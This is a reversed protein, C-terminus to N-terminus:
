NLYLSCDLKMEIEVLDNYGPIFNINQVSVVEVRDQLNEKTEKKMRKKIELLNNSCKRYEDYLEETIFGKINVRPNKALVESYSKKVTIKSLEEEKIEINEIKEIKFLQVNFGSYKKVMINNLEVRDGDFEVVFDIGGTMNQKRSLKGVIVRYFMIGGIQKCKGTPKCLM